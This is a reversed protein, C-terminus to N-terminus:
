NLQLNHARFVSHAWIWAAHEVMAGLGTRYYSFGIINDSDDILAAGSDGPATVPATYVREQTLFPYIMFVNPDFGTIRTQQPGSGIGDFVVAENVRPTIGILPGRRGRFSQGLSNCDVEVFCNDTVPDFSQVTGQLGNVTVQKGASVNPGLAHLAITIGKIGKENIATIGVTSRVNQDDHWVPWAPTPARSYKRPPAPAVLLWFRAVALSEMLFSPEVTNVIRAFQIISHDTWKGESALRKAELQEAELWDDLDRGHLAGRREFLEHAKERIHSHTVVLGQVWDQEFHRRWQHWGEMLDQENAEIQVASPESHAFAPDLVLLNYSDTDPSTVVITEGQTLALFSAGAKALMKRYAPSQLFVQWFMSAILPKTRAENHVIGLIKETTPGAMHLLGHSQPEVYSKMLTTLDM